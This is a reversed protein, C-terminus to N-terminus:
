NVIIQETFVKDGQRVQVVIIGKAYERLDFQQNYNGGFANLEEQFLQRGSQDMLTVVTPQRDATFELTVEGGSPNPYLKFNSLALSRSNAQPSTGPAANVVTADGETNKRITIIRREQLQQQDSDNWGWTNFTRSQGNGEDDTNVITVNSFDDECPRLTVTETREKGKRLYLVKVQDGSKYQAILDWLSVDSTVLQNDISLIVDDNDFRADRAASNSTFGTLRAGFKGANIEIEESYVGICAEKRDVQFSWQNSNSWANDWNWCQEEGLTVDTTNETDNRLYKVKVVEGPKTYEMFDSIDEFDEIPTDNLYTIRDGKRLGAKAVASNKDPIIARGPKDDDEGMPSVGLFGKKESLGSHNWQDITSGLVAIVASEKGNRQFVITTSDGPQASDITSSLDSWDTLARGNIYMIMDNDRLGARDAATGRTVQVVVGPKDEDEDSDESVGLFAENPNYGGYNYNYANNCDSRNMNSPSEVVMDRAWNVGDEVAIEVDRLFTNSGSRTGGRPTLDDGLRPANPGEITVQREEDTGTSTISLSVNDGKNDALYKDFDFNRAAEGRKTISETTVEGNTGRTKKLIVVEQAILSFGSSLAVFLLLLIRKTKM